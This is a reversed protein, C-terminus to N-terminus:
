SAHTPGASPSVSSAYRSSSLPLRPPFPTAYAANPPDERKQVGQLGVRQHPCSDNKLLCLGSPSSLFSPFLLYPKTYILAAEETLRTVSAREASLRIGPWSAADRRKRSGSMHSMSSSRNELLLWLSSTCSALSASPCFESDGAARRCFQSWFESGIRLCSLQLNQYSLMEKRRQRGRVHQVTTKESTEQKGTM